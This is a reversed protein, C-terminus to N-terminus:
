WGAVWAFGLISWILRGRGGVHVKSVIGVPGEERGSSAFGLSGGVVAGQIGMWGVWCSVALKEWNM